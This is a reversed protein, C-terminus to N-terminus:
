ESEEGEPLGINHLFPPLESLIDTDQKLDDNLDRFGRSGFYRVLTAAVGKDRQLDPHIWTFVYYGQMLLRLIYRKGRKLSDDAFEFNGDFHTPRRKAALSATM